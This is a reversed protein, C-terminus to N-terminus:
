NKITKWVCCNKIKILSLTVINEEESQAKTRIDLFDNSLALDCPNDEINEKLDKM